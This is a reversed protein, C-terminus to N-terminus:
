QHLEALLARVRAESEEGTVLKVKGSEIDDIRRRFEDRWATDVDAQDGDISGENDLSLLGNHIVAARDQPALALLAREIEAVDPAM